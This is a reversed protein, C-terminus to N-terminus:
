KHRGWILCQQSAPPRLILWVQDSSELDYCIMKAKSFKPSNEIIKLKELISATKELEYREYLLIKVWCSVCVISTERARLPWLLPWINFESTSSNFSLLNIEGWFHTFVQLLNVHTVHVHLAHLRTFSFCFTIFIIYWSLKQMFCIHLVTGQISYWMDIIRHDWIQYTGWVLYRQTMFFRLFFHKWIQNLVYSLFNYCYAKRNKKKFSLTIFSVSFTWM